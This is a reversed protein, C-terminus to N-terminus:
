RKAGTAHAWNKGRRIHNVAAASIGYRAGLVAGAEKSAYIERAQDATLKAKNSAEGHRTRNRSRGREVMDASNDKATGLRLHEPNCCCPTDCSHLVMDGPM